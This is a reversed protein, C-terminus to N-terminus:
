QWRGTVGGGCDKGEDGRGKESCIPGGQFDGGGECMLDRHPQVCERGCLGSLAIWSSYIGLVPLPKQSLGLEVHKPGVHLGPQVDAVYTCPPKPRWWM